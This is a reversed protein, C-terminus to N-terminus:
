QNDLLIPKTGILVLAGLPNTNGDLDRYRTYSGGRPAYTRSGATDWIALGRYCNPRTLTCAWTTGNSGVSCGNITAGIMWSEINGYAIGEPTLIPASPQDSITGCTDYGYWYHRQIGWSAYLLEIRGIYAQQDADSPNPQNCDGWRGSETAYLPRGNPLGYKALISKFQNVRSLQGEPTPANIHFDYCDYRRPGAAFYNDMYTAYSPYTPDIIFAPSCVKASSDNARITDTYDNEFRIADSISMMGNFPSIENWGEYMEIKGKYRQVLSTVFEKWRCNTTIIGALPGQCTDTTNLDVPASYCREVGTSLMRCKSIDSAAWSPVGYHSWFIPANHLQAYAVRSDLGAWNYTGRATEIYEWGTAVPKGMLQMVVPAIISENSVPGSVAVHMGFFQTVTQQPVAVVCGLSILASIWITKRLM